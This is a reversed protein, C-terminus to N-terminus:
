AEQLLFQKGTGEGEQAEKQLGAAYGSFSTNTEWRIGKEPWCKIRHLFQLENYIVCATYLNLPINHMVCKDELAKVHYQDVPMAFSGKWTRQLRQRSDKM